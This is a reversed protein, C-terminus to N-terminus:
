KGPLLKHYAKRAVTRAHRADKRAGRFTNSKVVKNHAALGIVVGVVGAFAAVGLASTDSKSLNVLVPDAGAVIAVPQTGGNRVRSGDEPRAVSIMGLFGFRAGRNM